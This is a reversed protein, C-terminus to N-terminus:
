KLIEIAMFIPFEKRAKNERESNKGESEKNSTWEELNVVQMGLNKFIKFYYQLPRHFSYTYRKYSERKESPTMDLKIKDEIMYKDVRRYQLSNDYGWSTFKPIRYSPHNIILILRGGVKLSAKVNEIVRKVNEINQLALVCIAIDYKNQLSLPSTKDDQFNEANALYYNINSGSKVKNKTAIEILEASLDFATIKVKDNKVFIEQSFFGQGCAVDLIEKDDLPGLLRLLNPLILDKHYSSEKGLYKDYAESVTSWDTKTTRTNLNM